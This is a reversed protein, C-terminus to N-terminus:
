THIFTNILYHFNFFFSFLIVFVCGVGVCNGRYLLATAVDVHGNLMSLLLPTNGEKNGENLPAGSRILRLCIDLYGYKAALHLATEGDRNTM